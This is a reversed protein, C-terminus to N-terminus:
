IAEAPLRIGSAFRSRHRRSSGTFPALNTRPIHQRTSRPPLGSLRGPHAYWDERGLPTQIQLLAVKVGQYYAFINSTRMRNRPGQRGTKLM